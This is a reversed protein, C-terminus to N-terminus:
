WAQDAASRSLERWLGGLYRFTIVRANGSAPNTFAGALRFDSGWTIAGMAGGSGNVVFYTLTRGEGPNTPNALTFAVGDTVGLLMDGPVAADTAVTTGYSLVVVPPALILDRTVGARDVTFVKTWRGTLKDKRQFDFGTRGAQGEMMRYATPDPPLNAVERWLRSIVSDVRPNGTPYPAGIERM